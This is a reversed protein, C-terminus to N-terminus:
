PTKAENKPHCEVCQFQSIDGLNVPHKFPANAKHCSDCKRDALGGLDVPHQFSQTKVSAAPAASDALVTHCINCDNRIVKGTNSVHEGDHCRFCGTFYFHGINDPHAQWDTKMEPFLYTQFVRQTESIASKVAANKGAYVEAYNTRYFQDLRSAIANVAEGTTNYQATLAAVAERKLYPLSPDLKGAALSQDIAQDPPLYRHAPRNHCDVCDM